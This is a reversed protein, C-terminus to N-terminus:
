THSPRLTFLTRRPFKGAGLAMLRAGTETLSDKPAPQQQVKEKQNFFKFYKM